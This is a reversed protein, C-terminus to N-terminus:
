DRRQLVIQDRLRGGNDLTVEASLVSSSYSDIQPFPLQFAYASGIRRWHERQEKLTRISMTWTQLPQGRPDANYRRFQFLEFVVQGSAKIPDGFQDTLEVLAEIGDPSGDNTWDKAGTFIPHVRMGTARFLDGRGGAARPSSKCSCLCLSLLVVCLLRM